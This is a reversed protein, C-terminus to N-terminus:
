KIVYGITMSGRYRLRNKFPCETQQRNRTESNWPQFGVNLKSLCSTEMGKLEFDSWQALASDFDFLLYIYWWLWPRVLEPPLSTLHASNESMVPVPQQTWTKAQDEIAWDTQWRAILRSAIQNPTESEWSKYGVNLLPLRRTEKRNSIIEKHWRVILILCYHIIVYGIVM